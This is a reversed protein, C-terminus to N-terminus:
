YKDTEHVAQVYTFCLDLVRECVRQSKLVINRYSFQRVEKTQM